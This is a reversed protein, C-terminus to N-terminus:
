SSRHDCKDLPKLMRKNLKGKSYFTRLLQHGVAKKAESSSQKKLSFNTVGYYPSAVDIDNLM